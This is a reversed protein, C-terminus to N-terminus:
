VVRVGGSAEEGIRSIAGGVLDCLYDLSDDVFEFITEAGLCEDGSGDQEEPDEDGQDTDGAGHCEEPSAVPITAISAAM